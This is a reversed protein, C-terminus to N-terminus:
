PLVQEEEVVEAEVPTQAFVAARLQTQAPSPTQSREPYGLAAEVSEVEVQEAGLQEVGAQEAAEM